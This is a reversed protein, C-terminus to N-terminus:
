VGWQNAMASAIGPYTKSREKGKGSGLWHMKNQEAWPLKIMEVYVNHTHTLKSVNQLWLCTTKREPHGFQYPHIIQDPKRIATSIVSVPNEIVWKNIKCRMLKSVFDLAERQRGDAIKEKFWAAGSVAIDTCPPHAIMMDWGDNIIDFVSGKYHWEPHGGSCDQLDCSYAEHGANRFAITVAQSEECAVLLRM